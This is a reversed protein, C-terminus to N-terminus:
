RHELLYDKALNIQAALYTPGGRDPHFKQMLKRHAGIVQDRSAGVSLGLIECARDENMESDTNSPDGDGFTAQWNPYQRDLFSTMVNLSDHDSGCEDFLLKLQPLDLDSLAQGKFQGAIVDGTMEGSDHDLVMHLLPTDVTSQRGSAPQASATPPWAATGFIGRIRKAMGILGVSRAIWPLWRGIFPLSAGLFAFLTNLKGTLGLFILGASMIVSTYIVMFQQISLPRRGLLVRLAVFIVLLTIFILTVQVM